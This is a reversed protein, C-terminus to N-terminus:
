EISTPDCKPCSAHKRRTAGCKPCTTTEGLKSLVGVSKRKIEPNRKLKSYRGRPREAVADGVGLPLSAFYDAYEEEGWDPTKGAASHPEVEPVDQDDDTNQGELGEALRTGRISTPTLAYSDFVKWPNRRFPRSGGGTPAIPMSPSDAHARGAAKKLNSGLLSWVIDLAGM